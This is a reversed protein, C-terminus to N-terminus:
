GKVEAFFRRGMLGRPRLVLVLLLLTFGVADRYGSDLFLSALNEVIGLLM